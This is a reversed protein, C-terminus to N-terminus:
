RKSLKWHLWHHFNLYFSLMKMETVNSVARLTDTNGHQSKIIPFSFHYELEQAYTNTDCFFWVIAAYTCKMSQIQNPVFQQINALNTCILLVLSGLFHILGYM